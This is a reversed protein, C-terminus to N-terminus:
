HRRLWWLKNKRSTMLDRALVRILPEEGDKRIEEIQATKKSSAPPVTL